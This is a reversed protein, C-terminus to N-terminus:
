SECQHPLNKTLIVGAAIDHTHHVAVWFRVWYRMSSHSVFSLKALANRFLANSQEIEIFYCDCYSLYFGSFLFSVNYHTAVRMFQKLKLFFREVLHREKYLMWDCRWPNGHILSQHFPTAEMRSSFITWFKM